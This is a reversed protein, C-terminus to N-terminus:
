VHARGIQYDTTSDDVEEHVDNWEYTAGYRFFHNGLPILFRGQHVLIYPLSSCEEIRVTMLQGRACMMLIPAFLPHASRNWGECFVIHEARVGEISHSAADWGNLSIKKRVLMGTHELDSLRQEVVRTTDLVGARPVELTPHSAVEPPVDLLNAGLSFDVRRVPSSSSFYSRFLM